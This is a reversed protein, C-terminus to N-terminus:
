LFCLMCAFHVVYFDEWSFMYKALAQGFEFVYIFYVWFCLYFTLIRNLLEKSMNCRSRNISGIVSGITLKVSGEYDVERTGVRQQSPPVSCRSPFHTIERQRSPSTLFRPLTKGTIIVQASVPLCILLRPLYNIQVQVIVKEMHFSALSM